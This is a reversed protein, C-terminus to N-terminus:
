SRLARMAVNQARRQAETAYIHQRRLAGEKRVFCFDIQALAGDLPRYLPQTVDYAVFDHEAMFGVIEAFVSGGRFFDFFSIELIVFEAAALMTPAGRLVALESGQVDVKVLYPPALGRAAIEDDLRIVPVTRPVGDVRPESEQLMTSGVLDEHVNFVASGARDSAAAQLWRARGALASGLARLQDSYEELPEILLFMAEPFVQAADAAFGGFAAGVDIVTQPALGNLRANELIRRHSARQAAPSIKGIRRLEYGIKRLAFNALRGFM